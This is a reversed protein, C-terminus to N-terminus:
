LYRAHTRVRMHAHIHTHTYRELAVIVQRLLNLLVDWQVRGPAGQSLSPLSLLPSHDVHSICM